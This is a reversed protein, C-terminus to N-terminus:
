RSMVAASFLVSFARPEATDGTATNSAFVPFTCILAAAATAPSSTAHSSETAQPSDTTNPAASSSETAQPPDTDTAHPSVTAQPWLECGPKPAMQLELTAQPSPEATCSFDTPASPSCYVRISGVASFQWSM